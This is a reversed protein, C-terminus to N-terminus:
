VKCPPAAQRPRLRWAPQKGRACASGGKAALLGAGSVIQIEHREVLRVTRGDRRAAALAALPAAFLDEDLALLWRRSGEASADLGAFLTRYLDEGKLDQRFQRLQAAIAARGPLRRLRLGHRNLVWRWSEPEDLHFGIYSQSPGLVRQLRPLLDPETRTALLARLSAARNEEAAEFCERLLAPRGTRLYLLAAARVLGSYAQQLLQESGMRAGDEAAVRARWNRVLAVAARFDQLAAAPRGEALRVRGRTHYLDWSPVFGSPRAALGRELLAGALPTDGRALYLRGLNRYSTELAPLRNLKRVRYAALMAAEAADLRGAKYLEEGMRDCGLAWTALDAAADARRIGEEFLKFAEEARGQRSRLSALQILVKPLHGPEIGHLARVAWRAAAATDGMQEYVSAINAETIARTGTDGSERALARARTLHELAPQYRRRALECSASNSLFRSALDGHGLSLALERGSEFCAFAEEIRGARFRESCRRLETQLKSREPSELGTRRNPKGGPGALPLILLLCVLVKTKKM